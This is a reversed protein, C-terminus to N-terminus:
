ILPFSATRAPLIGEDTVIAVGNTAAIAETSVM